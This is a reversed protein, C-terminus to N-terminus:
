SLELEVADQVLLDNSLTVLCTYKGLHGIKVDFIELKESKYFKDYTIKYHHSFHNPILFTKGFKWVVDRDESKCYFSINKGISVRKKRPSIIAKRELLISIFSLQLFFAEDNSVFFYLYDKVMFHISSRPTLIIYGMM